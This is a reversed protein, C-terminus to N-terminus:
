RSGRGREGGLVPDAGHIYTRHKLSLQILGILQAPVEHAGVLGARVGTVRGAEDKMLSEVAIGNIYEAGAAEAQEQLWQDFPARLVTLAALRRRRYVKRM